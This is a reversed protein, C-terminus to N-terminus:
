FVYRIRIRGIVYKALFLLMVMTMGLRKAKYINIKFHISTSNANLM